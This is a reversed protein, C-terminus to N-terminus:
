NVAIQVGAETERPDLVELKAGNEDLFVQDENDFIDEDEAESFDTVAGTMSSSQTM